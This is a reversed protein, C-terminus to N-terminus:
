CRCSSTRTPRPCTTSGASGRRTACRWAPCCCGTCRSSSRCRCWSRAPLRRAPQGEGRPLHADDGAADAAPQGQLARAAADGQPQHGEDQGDLPLRQCPALLLRDEAAGGAGRDVLGLQRAGLAAPGAALVAAQGPHHVLRLGQGPGARPWRQRAQERGAPRRVAHGGAGQQRGAGGRGAARDHRRLVPQRVKARSTRASSAM